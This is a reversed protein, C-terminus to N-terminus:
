FGKDTAARDRGKEGKTCSSQRHRSACPRALGLDGQVRRLLPRGKRRVKVSLEDLVEAPADVVADPGLLELVALEQQLGPLGPLDDLGLARREVGKEVRRAGVAAVVAHGKVDAVRFAAGAADSLAAQAEHGPFLVDAVRDEGVGARRPGDLDAEGPAVAGVGALRDRQGPNAARVLLEEQLEAGPRRGIRGREGHRERLRRVQPERAQREHRGLVEFAHAGVREVEHPLERRRDGAPRAAAM